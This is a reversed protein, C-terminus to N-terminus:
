NDFLFLVREAGEDQLQQLDAFFQGGLRDRWVVMEGGGPSSTRGGDNDIMVRRDEVLADYNFETLEKVSLWSHSHGDMGWRGSLDRAYDSADDPFGRPEALPPVDSYNRVGALFGYMFYARWDFPELGPIAEYKGERKREALSHIDCGM